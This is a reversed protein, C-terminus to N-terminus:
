VRRSRRIADVHPGFGSQKPVMVSVHTCSHPAPEARRDAAWEGHGDGVFSAQDASTGASLSTTCNADPRKRCERQHGVSHQITHDYESGICASAWEGTTSSCSQGGASRNTESSSPLTKCRCCERMVSPPGPTTTGQATALGTVPSDFSDAHCGHNGIHPITLHGQGHFWSSVLHEHVSAWHCLTIHGFHAEGRRVQRLRFLGRPTAAVQHKKAIRVSGAGDPSPRTVM